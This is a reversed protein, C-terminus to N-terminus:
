CYIVNGPVKPVILVNVQCTHGLWFTINYTPNKTFTLVLKITHQSTNSCKEPRVEHEAYVVYTSVWMFAELRVKSMITWINIDM